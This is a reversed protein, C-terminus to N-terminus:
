NIRLVRREESRTDEAYATNTVAYQKSDDLLFSHFVEHRPCSNASANIGTKPLASSHELESDEISMSIDVTTNHNYKIPLVLLLRRLMIVAVYCMNFHNASNLRLEILNVVTIQVWYKYM